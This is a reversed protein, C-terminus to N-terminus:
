KSTLAEKVSEKIQEGRLDKAIVKGEPDILWIAPLGKDVIQKVLESKIEESIYGQLYGSGKKDLFAKAQEIKLDISLGIIMFDEGGFEKQVAELNPKEKICPGCWTAWIDFLVYKGKYDSIKFEGGDYKLVSIEPLVEGVEPIIEDKLRIEGIDHIGNTGEVVVQMQALAKAKSKNHKGVHGNKMITITLQHWEPKVGQFTFTGDKAVSAELVTQNEKAKEVQQLYKPFEKSQKFENLWAEQEEKSMEDVNDPPPPSPYNIEGELLVKANELKLGADIAWQSIEVKGTLEILEESNQEREALVSLCSIASICLVLSKQLISKM